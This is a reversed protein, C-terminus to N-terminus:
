VMMSVTKQHGRQHSIVRDVMGIAVITLITFLLTLPSIHLANCFGDLLGLLQNGTQSSSSALGGTTKILIEPKIFYILSAIIMALGAFAFIGTLQRAPQKQRQPLIEPLRAMVSDAFGPSLNDEVEESLLACMTKYQEMTKQCHPCNELHLYTPDSKPVNGDLINQLIEDTLHSYNV